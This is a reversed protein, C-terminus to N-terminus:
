RWDSKSLLGAQVAGVKVLLHWGLLYAALERFVETRNTDLNPNRLFHLYHGGEHAIATLAYFASPENILILARDYFIRGSVELTSDIKLTAGLSELYNWPNAIYKSLLPSDRLAETGESCKM